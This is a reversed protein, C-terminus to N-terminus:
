EDKYGRGQVIFGAWYWPRSFPRLKPSELIDQLRNAYDDEGEELLKDIASVIYRDWGIEALQGVTVNRVFAKAKALADEPMMGADSLLEEYFKQMLLASSLDDVEWLTCVLFGAGALEFARRLGKIGEGKEAEGLGTQCAALVVLRYKSLDLSLIDLGSLIGDGYAEPLLEGCCWNEFGAFLLGCRLLPDVANKLFLDRDNKVWADEVYGHTSIHLMDAETKSELSHKTAMAGLAVDAKGREEFLSVIGAAEIETFPRQPIVNVHPIGRKVDEQDGATVRFAPNAVVAIHKGQPLPLNRMMERGSSLYVVSCIEDDQCYEGAKVLMEFPITYLIGDPVINVRSVNIMQEEFPGLLLVQLEELQQQFDGGEEIKGIFEAAVDDIKECLGIDTFRVTKDTIAFAAYREAYSQEKEMRETYWIFRIYEVLIEGDKLTRQVEATHIDKFPNDMSFSDMMELLKIGAMEMEEECKRIADKQGRGIMLWMKEKHLRNIKEWEAKIEQSDTSRFFQSYAYSIEANANHMKLCFDYLQGADFESIEKLVASYCLGLIQELERFYKRRLNEQCLGLVADPADALYKMLEKVYEATGTKGCCLSLWAASFYSSFLVQINQGGSEKEADLIKEAYCLAMTDNKQQAYCSVLFRLAELVEPSNNECITRIAALSQDAYEIAEKYEGARIYNGSLCQCADSIRKMDEPSCDQYIDLARHGYILANKGANEFADSESALIGYCDSAQVCAEATEVHSKGYIEECLTVAQLAYELAKECDNANMHLRCLHKVTICSLVNDSKVIDWVKYAAKFAEGLNDLGENCVFLERLKDRMIYKLNIYTRQDAVEEYRVAAELFKLFNQCDGNKGYLFMLWTDCACYHEVAGLREYIARAREAYELSLGDDEVNHYCISVLIHSNACEIEEQRNRSLQGYINIARVTYDIASTYDERAKLIMGIGALATAYYFNRKKETKVRIEEYVEYAPELEGRNVLEKALFFKTRIKIMDFM